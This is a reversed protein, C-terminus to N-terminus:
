GHIIDEKGFLLRALTDSKRLVSGLLLCVATLALVLPVAACFELFPNGTEVFWAGLPHLDPLFFFHLFYIDLSRRGAFSLWRGAKGECVKGASRFFLFVLLVASLSFAWDILFGWHAIGIHHLLLLLFPTLIMVTKGAASDMIREFAAFESRILAGFAFFQFYKFNQYSLAAATRSSTWEPCLIDLLTPVFSVAVAIVFLVRAANKGSLFRRLPFYGALYLLMFLFLFPTFWYGGKFQSFVVSDLSRHKWVAFVTVFILAPIILEKAKKGLFRFPFRSEKGFREERYMLFGSLFFLIPLHLLSVTDYCFGTKEPIGFSVASVHCYVVLLMAFGRICDLYPIRNMM